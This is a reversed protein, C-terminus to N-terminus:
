MSEYYLNFYRLLDLVSNKVKFRITYENIRNYNILVFALLVLKTRSFSFESHLAHPLSLFYIIRQYRIESLLKIFVIGYM